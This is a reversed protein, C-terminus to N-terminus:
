RAGSGRLAESAAGRHHPLRRRAHPRAGKGRRRPRGRRRSRCRPASSMSRGRCGPAIGPAHGHSTRRPLASGSRGHPPVSPLLPPGADDSLAMSADLHIKRAGARVFQRVLIEAKEMAAAENMGRWPYPGLHDGGLVVLDPDTAHESCRRTVMAKFADPTLGTYGGDQNVQNATAEVLFAKGTRRALRIAAEIVFPHSSCVSCLGTSVGRRRSEKLASLVDSVMREGDTTVTGNGAWPDLAPQSSRSARGTVACAPPVMNLRSGPVATYRERHMEGLSPLGEMIGLFIRNMRMANVIQARAAPVAAACPENLAGGPLITM